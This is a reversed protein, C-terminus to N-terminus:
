SCICSLDMCLPCAHPSAQEAAAVSKTFFQTLLTGGPPGYTTVVFSASKCRIKLNRFLVAGVTGLDRLFAIFQFACCELYCCTSVDLGVIRDSLTPLRHRQSIKVRTEKKRQSHTRRTARNTRSAAYGMPRLSLRRRIARIHMSTRHM